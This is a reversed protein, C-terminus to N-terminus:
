VIGEHAMQQRAYRAGKRFSEWCSEEHGCPGFGGHWLVFAERDIEFQSKPKEMPAPPLPAQVLWHLGQMTGLSFEIGEPKPMSHWQNIPWPKGIADLVFQNDPTFRNM